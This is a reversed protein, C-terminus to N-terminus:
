SDYTVTWGKAELSSIANLGIQTPVSNNQVYLVGDSLGGNDVAVCVNDVSSSDLNCAFLRIDTSGPFLIDSKSFTTLPCGYLAKTGIQDWYRIVALDGIINNNQCRFVTPNFNVFDDLSGTFGVSEMTAYGDCTFRKFVSTDGKLGTNYLELHHSINLYRFDSIDGICGPNNAISLNRRVDWTRLFGTNFTLYMGYLPLDYIPSDEIEIIHEISGDDPTVSVLACSDYEVNDFWWKKSTDYYCIRFNCPNPSSATFRFKFPEPKSVLLGCDVKIKSGVKAQFKPLVKPVCRM